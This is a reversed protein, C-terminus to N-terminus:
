FVKQLKEKVPIVNVNVDVNVMVQYDTDQHLALSHLGRIPGKEKLHLKSFTTENLHLSKPSVIKLNINSERFHVPGVYRLQWYGEETLCVVTFSSFFPVHSLHSILLHEAPECLVQLLPAHWHGCPQCVRQVREARKISPATKRHRRQM